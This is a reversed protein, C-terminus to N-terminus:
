TKTSRMGTVSATENLHVTAPSTEIIDWHHRTACRGLGQSGEGRKSCYTRHHSRGRLKSTALHLSLTAIDIDVGVCFQTALCCGRSAGQQALLQNILQRSVTFLTLTCSHGHTVPRCFGGLRQWDCPPSRALAELMMFSLFFTWPEFREVICLM